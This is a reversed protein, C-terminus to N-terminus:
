YRNLHWADFTAVVVVTPRVQFFFKASKGVLTRGYGKRQALASELLCLVGSFDIEQAETEIM